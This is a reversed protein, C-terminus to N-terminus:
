AAASALSVRFRGLDRCGHHSKSRQHAHPRYGLALLALDDAAPDNAEDLDWADPLLEGLRDANVDGALYRALMERVHAELESM